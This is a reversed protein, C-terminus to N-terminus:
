LIYLVHFSVYIFEFNYFSFFIVVQRFLVNIFSHVLDIPSTIFASLAGASSAALVTLYNPLIDDAGEQKTEESKTAKKESASTSSISRSSSSRHMQELSDKFHEYFVFYLASFPGFSALTAAYGTCM